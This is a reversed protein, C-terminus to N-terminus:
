GHFAHAGTYGSNKLLFPLGYFDNNEYKVYAAESEPAFLSNNVAFEADSTNGGGIQYSYNNFYITDNAIMANLNPMIEQGEYSTGIVFNQLAEVQIIFVNRGEAM